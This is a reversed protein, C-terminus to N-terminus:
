RAAHGVGFWAPLAPRAPIRALRWPLPRPDQLKHSRSRRAPLSGIRVHELENVPTAQEFYALMEANEAVHQRYFLFAAQSMQEMAADWDASESPQLPTAVSQLSAALMLELNWAALSVDSYKWNMVEGQE